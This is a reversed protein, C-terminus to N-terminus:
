ISCEQSGEIFVPDSLFVQRNQFVTTLAVAPTPFKDKLARTTFSLANWTGHLAPRYLMSNKSHLSIEFVVIRDHSLAYKTPVEINMPVLTGLRLV